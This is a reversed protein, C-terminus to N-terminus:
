NKGGSMTSFKCNFAFYCLFEELMCYMNTNELAPVFKTYIRNGNESTSDVDAITSSDSVRGLYPAKLLFSLFFFAIFIGKQFANSQQSQGGPIHISYVVNWSYIYIYTYIDATFSLNFNISIPAKVMQVNKPYFFYYRKDLLANCALIPSTTGNRHRGITDQIAKTLESQM